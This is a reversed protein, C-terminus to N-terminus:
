APQQGSNGDGSAHILDNVAVHLFKVLHRGGPLHNLDLGFKHEAPVAVEGSATAWPYECNAPSHGGDDVAPSLLEIRRALVRIAHLMWSRDRQVQKAQRALQERAILPLTHAIYAHSRRLQEPDRGQGCRYAKCIKECAMQLFHLHQCEPLAPPRLLRERAALDAL